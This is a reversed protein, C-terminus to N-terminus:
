TILNMTDKFEGIDVEQQIPFQPDVPHFYEILSDENTM